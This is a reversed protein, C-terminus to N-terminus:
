RSSVLWGEGIDAAGKKSYSSYILGTIIEIGNRCKEFIINPKNIKVYLKHKRDSDMLIMNKCSFM